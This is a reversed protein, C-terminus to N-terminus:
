THNLNLSSFDKYKIGYVWKNIEDIVLKRYRIRLEKREQSNGM